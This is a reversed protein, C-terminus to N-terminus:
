RPVRSLLSRVWAHIRVWAATDEHSSLALHTLFFRGTPSSRGAVFLPDQYRCNPPHRKCKKYGRKQSYNCVYSKKEAEPTMWVKKRTM